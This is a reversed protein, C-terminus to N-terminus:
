CTAQSKLDQFNLRELFVKGCSCIWDKREFCLYTPKDMVPLHRVRKEYTQHPKTADEGCSPCSKDTNQLEGHILVEGEPNMELNLATFQDLKLVDNLSM